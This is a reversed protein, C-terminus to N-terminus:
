ARLPGSRDRWRREIEIAEKRAGVAVLTEHIESAVERSCLNHGGLECLVQAIRGKTNLGKDEVDKTRAAEQLVAALDKLAAPLLNDINLDFLAGYVENADRSKLIEQFLPRLAPWYKAAASERRAPEQLPSMLYLAIGGKGEVKTM